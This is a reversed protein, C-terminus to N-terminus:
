GCGILENEIWRVFGKPPYVLRQLLMKLLFILFDVYKRDNHHQRDLDLVHVYRM